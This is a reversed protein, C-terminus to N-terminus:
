LLFNVFKNLLFLLIFEFFNPKSLYVVGSKEQSFKQFISFQDLNDFFDEKQNNNNNYFYYDPPYKFKSGAAEQLSVLRNLVHISNKNNNDRNRSAKVNTDQKQFTGIQIFKLSTTDKIKYITRVCSSKYVTTKLGEEFDIWFIFSEWFVSM